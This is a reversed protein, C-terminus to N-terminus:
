NDPTCFRYMEKLLRNSMEGVARTLVSLGPAMSIFEIVTKFPPVKWWSVALGECSDNFRVDSRVILAPAM